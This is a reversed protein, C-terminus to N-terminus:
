VRSIIYICMTIFILGIVLPYMYPIVFSENYYFVGDVLQAFSTLIIIRGIWHHLVDYWPIFTRKDDFVHNIFLGLLIQAVFLITIIFALLVHVTGAATIMEFGGVSMYGTTLGSVFLIFAGLIISIHIYFWYMVQLRIMMVAIPVLIWVLIMLTMHAILVPDPVTVEPIIDITATVVPATVTINHTHNASM